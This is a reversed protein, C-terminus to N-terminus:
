IKEYIPETKIDLNIIVRVKNHCHPCITDFVIIRKKDTEIEARLKRFIVKGCKAYPCVAIIEPLSKM